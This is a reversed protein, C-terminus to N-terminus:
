LIIGATRLSDAVAADPRFHEFYYKRNNDEMAHVKDVNNLMDLLTECIQGNSSCEAYNVNNQAFPMTYYMSDTVIARNAALLEGFRAGICHQHGQTTIGIINSHMTKIYSPRTIVRADQTILEPCLKQATEGDAIGGILREGLTDRLMRVLEIRQNNIDNLMTEWETQVRSAQEDSLFPYVKKAQNEGISTENIRTWFLVDYTDYHVCENEYIRFDNERLYKGAYLKKSVAAKIASLSLKDASNNDKARDFPNNPYTASFTGAVFPKVKDANKLGVYYDSNCNAKFYIDVNELQEDFLEPRLFSQYGNEYDYVILRGGVRVEIINNHPYLNEKLFTDHIETKGIQILGKDALIRYGSLIWSAPSRKCFCIDCTLKGSM